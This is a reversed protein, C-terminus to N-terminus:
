GGWPILKVVVAGVAAAFAAVVAMRGLLNAERTELLRISKELEGAKGDHLERSVYHAQMERLRGAEGNLDDLRRELEDTQIRLADRAAEFRADMRDKVSQIKEPLLAEMVALRAHHDTLCPKDNKPAEGSM